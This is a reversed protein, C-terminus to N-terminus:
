KNETTLIVLCIIHKIVCILTYADKTSHEMIVLLANCVKNHKIYVHVHIYLMNVLIMYCEIYVTHTSAYMKTIRNSLIFCEKM